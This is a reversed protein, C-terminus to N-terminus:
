KQEIFQWIDEDHTIIISKDHESKKVWLIGNITYFLTIVKDQWLGKYKGWLGCHYRCLSESIFIRSGDNLGYKGLDLNKLKRKKNLVESSKRLSSYEILTRDGKIWHCDEINNPKSVVDTDGLINCLINCIRTTSLHHYVLLRWVSEETTSNKAVFVGRM